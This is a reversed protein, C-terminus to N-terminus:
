QFLYDRFDKRLFSAVLTKLAELSMDLTIEQDRAKIVAGAAIEGSEVGKERLSEVVEKLLLENVARASVKTPIIASLNASIGEKELAQVIVNILKAIIQPDIAKKEILSVLEHRFFRKEIIEKLEELTQKCAQTLSSKFINKEQEIQNRSNMLVEEAERRAKELIEDAQQKARDIITDAEIIAPDLTEQRIAECIKKLKDRGSEM